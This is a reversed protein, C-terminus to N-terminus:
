DKGTPGAPKGHPPYQFEPYRESSLDKPTPYEDWAPSAKRPFKGSSITFEEPVGGKISKSM